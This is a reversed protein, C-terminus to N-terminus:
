LIVIDATSSDIVKTIFKYCCKNSCKWSEANRWVRITRANTACDQYASIEGGQECYLCNGSCCKGREQDRCEKPYCHCCSISQTIIKCKICGSAKLARLCWFSYSKLPLSFTKKDIFENITLITKERIYDKKYMKRIWKGFKPHLWLKDIVTDIYNNEM